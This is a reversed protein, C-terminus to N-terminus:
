KNGNATKFINYSQGTLFTHAEAQKYGANQLIRIIDEEPTCHTKRMGGPSWEIIAIRGEPKLNEKLNRFYSEPNLIHHFVNRMFILDCSGAPMKRISEGAMTEINNLRLQKIREAIYELLAKDTDVAYVRGEPGALRSFFFSYYGGGSGIDAIVDGPKIRLSRLIEDSGQKARRNLMNARISRLNM